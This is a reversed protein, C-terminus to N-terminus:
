GELEKVLDNTLKVARKVIYADWQDTTSISSEEDIPCQWNAAIMDSIFKAAIQRKTNFLSM